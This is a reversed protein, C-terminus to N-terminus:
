GMTVGSCWVLICIVARTRLHQGVSAVRAYGATFIPRNFIVWALQVLVAASSYKHKHKSGKGSGFVKLLWVSFFLLQDKFGAALQIVHM